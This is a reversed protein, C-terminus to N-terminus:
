IEYVRSPIRFRQGDVDLLASGPPLDVKQGSPVAVSPAKLDDAPARALLTQRALLTGVARNGATRQLGLLRASLSPASTAAPAPAPAEARETAREPESETTVM